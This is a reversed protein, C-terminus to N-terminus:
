EKENADKWVPQVEEGWQKGWRGAAWDRQKAGRDGATGKIYLEKTHM